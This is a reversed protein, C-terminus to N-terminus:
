AAKTTDASKSLERLRGVSRRRARRKKRGRSYVGIARDQTVAGQSSGSASGEGSEELILKLRELAAKKVRSVHCRSYGLTRAINVLPQEGDYSRKIIEQELLDLKTIAERCKKIKEKRLINHEPTEVERQGIVMNDPVYAWIVENNVHQWEEPDIGINQAFALFINNAHAARAVARVLHGRLHYFFFTMFTAGKDESFRRAAECLALDVVSDIEDAPMRVRWRRLISRSLKRGSERHELVLDNIRQQEKASPKIDKAKTKSKAKSKAKKPKASKAGRGSPTSVKKESSKALTNTKCKM